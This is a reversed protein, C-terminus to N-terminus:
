ATAAGNARRDRAVFLAEARGARDPTPEIHHLVDLSPFLQLLEGPQLLFAPNSLGSTFTQYFLTGGPRLAAAIAACAARELFRAVVIVDYRDPPPPATLVDAHVVHAIASNARARLADIIVSSADSATVDFGRRALWEGNGARGCALDLARGGAPLEAAFRSLVEAPPPVSDGSLAYRANWKSATDSM